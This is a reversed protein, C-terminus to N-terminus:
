KLLWCLFFDTKNLRTKVRKFNNITKILEEGNILTELINLKILFKKVAVSQNKDGRLFARGQVFYNFLIEKRKEYLIEEPLIKIVSYLYYDRLLRIMYKKYLYSFNTASHRLFPSATFFSTNNVEIKNDANMTNLIQVFCNYKTLYNIEKSSLPLAKKLALSSLSIKKDRPNDCNNEKGRVYDSIEKKSFSFSYDSFNNNKYALYRYAETLILPNFSGLLSIAKSINLKNFYIRRLSKLRGSFYKPSNIAKKIERRFIKNDEAFIIIPQFWGHQPRRMNWLLYLNKDNIYLLGHKMLGSVSKAVRLCDERKIRLILSGKDGFQGLLKNAAIFKRILFRWEKFYLADNELEKIERLLSTKGTKLFNKFMRRKERGDIEGM